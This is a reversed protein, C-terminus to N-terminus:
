ATRACGPSRRDPPWGRNGIPHGPREDKARRSLLNAREHLTLARRQADTVLYTLGVADVAKRPLATPSRCHGRRGHERTQPLGPADRARDPPARDESCEDRQLLQTAELLELTGRLDDGLGADQEEEADKGHQQPPPARPPCGPGCGPTIRKADDHAEKAGERVGICRQGE